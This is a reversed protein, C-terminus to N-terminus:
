PRHHHCPGIQTVGADGMFMMGGRALFIAKSRGNGVRFPSKFSPPVEISLDDQSAHPSACHESAQRPMLDPVHEPVDVAM